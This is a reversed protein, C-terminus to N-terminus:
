LYKWSYGGATKQKGVEGIDSIKYLEEYNKIPLWKMFNGEQINKEKFILLMQIKLAFKKVKSLAFTATKKKM